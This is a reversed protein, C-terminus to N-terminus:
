ELPLSFQVTTMPSFEAAQYLLLWISQLAGWVMVDDHKTNLDMKIGWVALSRLMYANSGSLRSVMDKNIRVPLRWGATMEGERLSRRIRAPCVFRTLTASSIVNKFSRGAVKWPRVKESHSSFLYQLLFLAALLEPQLTTLVQEGSRWGREESSSM